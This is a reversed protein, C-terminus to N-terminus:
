PVIKLNHALVPVVVVLVGPSRVPKLNTVPAVIPDALAVVGAVALLVMIMRMAALIVAVHRIDAYVMLTLVHNVLLCQAVAQVIVHDLLAQVFVM